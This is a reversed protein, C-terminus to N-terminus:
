ILYIIVGGTNGMILTEDPVNKGLIQSKELGSLLIYIPNLKFTQSIHYTSFLTFLRM